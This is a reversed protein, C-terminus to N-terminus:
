ALEDQEAVKTLWEAVKVYDQPVGKGDYYMLILNNQSEVDGREARRELCQIYEESKLEKENCEPM